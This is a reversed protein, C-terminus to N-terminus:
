FSAPTARQTSRSHHSRRQHLTHWPQHPRKQNRNWSRSRIRDLPQGAQSKKHSTQGGGACGFLDGACFFVPAAKPSTLSSIHLLALLTMHLHSLHNWSLEIIGSHAVKWFYPAFWRVQCCGKQQRIRPRDVGTPSPGTACNRPFLEPCM